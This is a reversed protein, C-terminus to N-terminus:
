DEIRPNRICTKAIVIGVVGVEDGGRLQGFGTELGM